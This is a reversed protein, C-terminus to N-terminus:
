LRAVVLLRAHAKAVEWCRASGRAAWPEAAGAAEVSHIRCARHTCSPFYEVAAPQNEHSHFTNLELSRWM